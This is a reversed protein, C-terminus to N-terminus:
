RRSRQAFAIIEPRYEFHFTDFHYWKGGWIFGHREFVEVIELPIRNKWTLAGGKGNAWLWYDGFRANLDIAAGYAHMSLRDTGAIPRCNYTGASPMLYRTVSTPLADLDRAVARLRDAVSNVTTVMVTGGGRGPLWRVPTLHGEVERRRCDGYMKRFFPEYRIRGPDENLGPAKLDTGLPYLIMFQDAISPANLLADFSKNERGDSVPMRTGDKWIVETDTHQALHDPYAAVLVDLLTSLEAAPAVTALGILLLVILTWM